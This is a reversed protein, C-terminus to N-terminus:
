MQELFLLREPCPKGITFATELNLEAEKTGSMKLVLDSRSTLRVTALDLDQNCKFTANELRIKQGGNNRCIVGTDM